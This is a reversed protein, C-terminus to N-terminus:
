KKGEKTQEWGRKVIEEHVNSQKPIPKGLRAADSVLEARV